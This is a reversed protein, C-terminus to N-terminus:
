CESHKRWTFTIDGLEAGESTPGPHRTNSLLLEVVLIQSGSAPSLGGRQHPIGPSTVQARDKM